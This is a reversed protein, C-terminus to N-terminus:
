SLSHFKIFNNLQAELTSVSEEEKAIENVILTVKENSIVTAYPDQSIWNMHAGPDSPSFIVEDARLCKKELAILSRRCLFLSYIRLINAALVVNPIPLLTVLASIPVLTCYGITYMLNKKKMRNINLCLETKLTEKCYSSPYIIEISSKQIHNSMDAMLIEHPDIKSRASIVFSYFRGKISSPQSTECLGWAAEVKEKMYKLVKQFNSRKAKSLSTAGTSAASVIATTTQSVFGLKGGRTLPIAYIKNTIIKM